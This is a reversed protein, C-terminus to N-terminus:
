YNEEKKLNDYWFKKLLFTTIIVVAISIMFGDWKKILLYMPWVVLSMQWIIGVFVNFMDRGFNKNKTFNKDTKKIEDFVPKWFGWPKVSKYFSKLKEMEDPPTLLSGFLCGLISCIFIIPFFYIDIWSSFFLLKITSAVLGILMGWFYGYGNFRWWIWKLVNAATYGGFLSATIWLTISNLSSAFFGFIVGIIVLLLSSLYGYKVYTKESKNPLLNNKLLDNAIYAPAANIVAAFTGMFAALLGALLLGKLGVPVFKSISYPLITEFDIQSMNSLEPTLFVLALVAFAAIMLYRPSFLVLITFGSMKAAEYPNKASLLRQMDYGPVPGALSSFFGKFLMMMFLAGIIEFGDTKIKENLQPLTQSWDLDMTWGFFLNEWGGPVVNSIQDYTVANYAIVAIIISSITMIVYQFVETAVVSMMGGRLTYVTTIGVIILAYMNESSISILDSSFALDWPLISNCFKGIGEFFYAVFGIASVVAFVIIINKSLQGGAGSFRTLIWSAGTMVNSRRIWVALFVMVFVQNWVPWLWPIWASKLGYIFLITVTWMVGSIDFMGSANSLGLLYWKIKNGGLFYQDLNKRAKSSLMFGVILVLIFYSLIIIFDLIELGM